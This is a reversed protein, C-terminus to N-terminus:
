PATPEECCGLEEKKPPCLCDGYSCFVCCDGQKPRMVTGCDACQYFYLCANQPVEEMSITGCEYCTILGTM